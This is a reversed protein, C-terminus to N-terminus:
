KKQYMMDIAARMSRALEQAEGDKSNAIRGLANSLNIIVGRGKLGDNAIRVPDDSESLNLDLKAIVSRAAAGMKEFSEISGDDYLIFYM